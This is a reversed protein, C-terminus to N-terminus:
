CTAYFNSGSPLYPVPEIDLIKDMRYENLIDVVKDAIEFNEDSRQYALLVHKARSIAESQAAHRMSSEGSESLAWTSIFLDVPGDLIAQDVTEVTVDLKLPDIVNKLYFVQLDVFTPTDVMRYKIKPNMKLILRAMAGYGGGWEFIERLGEIRRGTKHEWYLLHYLMQVSNSSCVIGFEHEVLDPNGFTPEDELISRVYEAGRLGVMFGLQFSTRTHDTSYATYRIAEHQLFNENGPDLIEEKVTQNIREWFPTISEDM